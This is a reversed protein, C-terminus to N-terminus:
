IFKLPFLTKLGNQEITINLSEWSLLMDNHFWANTVKKCAQRGGPASGGEEGSHVFSYSLPPQPILSAASLDNAYGASLISRGRRCVIRRCSVSASMLWQAPRPRVQWPVAAIILFLLWCFGWVQKTYNLLFSDWIVKEEWSSLFWDRWRLACILAWQLYVHCNAWLWGPFHVTVQM